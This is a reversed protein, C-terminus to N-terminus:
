FGSESILWGIVQDSWRKAMSEHRVTFWAQGPQGIRPLPDTPMELTAEALYWADLPILRGHADRTVAIPGGAESSLTPHDLHALSTPSIRQITATHARGTSADHFRISAGPTFHGMANEPLYCRLTIQSSDVIRGLYSGRQVAMGPRVSEDLVTMTGGVRARVVGAAQAQEIMTQEAELRARRRTLGNLQPRHTAAIQALRLQMDAQAWAFRAINREADHIPSAIRLLTQGPEVAQGRQVNIQEIIGSLPAYIAQEEMAVAVAPVSRRHPIPAFVWVALILVTGTVLVGGFRVRWQRWAGVVQILERFIPQILLAYIAGIFMFIGAFKALRFYLVMAISGYLVLRYAGAGLAYAILLRVQGAPLSEPRDIPLGFVGRRVVWRLWAFARSQLNDIRLLDMLLYYGDYRMAPNLNILVTSIVTASSLLVCISRLPGDDLLSWALLAVGAILGEALVGAGSILMRRSRRALRWADTVDCFPIPWLLILAIGMTPVRVGLSKATYAHAFEHIVKLGTMALGLMLMGQWTFLYSVSHLYAQSQQMVGILGTLMILLYIPWMWRAGLWRVYGLTADLFRDPHILPIRLFLLRSFWAAPTAHRGLALEAELHDPSRKTAAITLGRQTADIAITKLQHESLNIAAERKLAAALSSWSPHDRQLQGLVAFQLWNAQDFQGTTPDHITGTPAGHRDRPGQLLQVDPRLRPPRDVEADHRQIQPINTDM